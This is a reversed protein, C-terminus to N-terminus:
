NRCETFLFNWEESILNYIKSQWKNGEREVLRKFNNRLTWYSREKNAKLKSWYKPNSGKILLDKDRKNIGKKGTNITCDFLLVDRWANLLLTRLGNFNERNRLDELRNFRVKGMKNFKLEFRMLPDPLDFQLGKDYVKVSYERLKCHHGLCKGERDPNYRDFYDTKYGILNDELFPFVPFPLQVNVGFEINQIITNEPDLKLNTVLNSVEKQLDNWKFRQYNEGSYYNKHLSGEIKLNYSQTLDRKITRRLTEKVTLSYTEFKGYRTIVETEIGNRERKKSKINGSNEYVPLTLEIGTEFVWKNFDLNECFLKIGDIM